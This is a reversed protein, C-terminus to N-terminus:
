QLCTNWDKSMNENELSSSSVFVKEMGKKKEGEAFFNSM